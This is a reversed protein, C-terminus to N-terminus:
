LTIVIAKYHEMKEELQKKEYFYQNSMRMASDTAPMYLICESWM